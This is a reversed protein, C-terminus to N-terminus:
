IYSDENENPSFSYVTYPVHSVISHAQKLCQNLRHCDQIVDNSICYQPNLHKRILKNLEIRTQEIMEELHIFQQSLDICRKSEGNKFWEDNSELIQSVTENVIKRIQSETIQVKNRKMKNSTNINNENVIQPPVFYSASNNVFYELADTKGKNKQALKKIYEKAKAKGDANIHTAVLEKGDDYGRQYDTKKQKYM